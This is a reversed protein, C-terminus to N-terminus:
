DKFWYETILEGVAKDVAKQDSKSIDTFRVSTGFFENDERINLVVAKCKVLHESGPIIFELDIETNLPYPSPALIYMGSSSLNATQQFYDENGNINRIWMKVPVRERTRREGKRRSDNRDDQPFKAQEGQRRDVNKRRDNSQM